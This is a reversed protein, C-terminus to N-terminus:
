NVAKPAIEGIPLKNEIYFNDRYEIASNLSTFRARHRKGNFRIEFVINDPRDEKRININRHGSTNRKNIKSNLGNFSKTLYRLNELRNDLKNRNIHDIVYGKKPKLILHHLIVRKNNVTKVLYDNEKFCWGGTKLFKHYVIEDVIIERGKILVKM